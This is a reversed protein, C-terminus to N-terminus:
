ELYGDKLEDILANYKRLVELSTRTVKEVLKNCEILVNSPPSSSLILSANELSDYEKKRESVERYLTLAMRLKECVNLNRTTSALYPLIIDPNSHECLKVALDDNLKDLYLHPNSSM